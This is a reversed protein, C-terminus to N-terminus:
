EMKLMRSLRWAAEDDVVKAIVSVNHPGTDACYEYLFYGLPDDAIEPGASAIQQDTLPAICLTVNNTLNTSYYMDPM